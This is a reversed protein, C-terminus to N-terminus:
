WRYVLVDFIYPGVGGQQFTGGPCQLNDGSLSVPSLRCHGPQVKWYPPIALDIAPSPPAKLLQRLFTLKSHFNIKIIFPDREPM